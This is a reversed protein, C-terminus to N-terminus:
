QYEDFRQDLKMYARVSDTNSDSDALEASVASRCTQLTYRLPVMTAWYKRFLIFALFYLFPLAFTFFLPMLMHLFVLPVGLTNILAIASCIKFYLQLDVQVQDNSLRNM